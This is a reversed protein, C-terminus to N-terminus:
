KYWDILRGQQMVITITDKEKPAPMDAKIWQEADAKGDFNSDILFKTSNGNDKKTSLVSAKVFTKPGTPLNGSKSCGSCSTLTVAFIFLAYSLVKKM